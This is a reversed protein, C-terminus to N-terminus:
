FRVGVGLSIVSVGTSYQGVLTGATPAISYSISSSGVGFEHLFASRARVRPTVDYALGVGLLITDQNPLRPSRTSNTVPSQDYGVGGQLLWKAARRPRYDVGVSSLWTSRFQLPLVSTIGNTGNVILAQLVSWHTWQLTALATVEPTLDWAASLTLVDPLTIHTTNPSGLFALQAATVPSLAALAPPIFISTTGDIYEELRSRYDVGMRYRPTVEWLMGLHYGVSATSGHLDVAPDGTFQAVPGINVANTLRASFVDIIPGGGISLHPTLRYAVAPAIEVDTISSVEGQYRGVFDSPYATELGFPAEVALGFKLRQSASWVAEFAPTVAPHAANGGSSGPVAVGPALIDQGSFRASPFLGNVGLDIESADLRTMAAPNTWATGADDGTAAMGAFATASWDPDGPRIQFGNARVPAARLLAAVALAFAVDRALSM